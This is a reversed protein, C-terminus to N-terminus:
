LSQYTSWIHVDFLGTKMFIDKLYLKIESMVASVPLGFLHTVTGRSGTLVHISQTHNVSGV